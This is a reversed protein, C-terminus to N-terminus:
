GTISFLVMVSFEATCPPPIKESAPAEGAIVSLRMVPFLALSCPPPIRQLVPDHDIVPLKM